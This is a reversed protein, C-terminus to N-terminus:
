KNKSFVFELKDNKYMLRAKGQKGSKKWQFTLENTQKGLLLQRIDGEGIIAGSISKAIVFNCKTDKCKYVKGREVVESSCTPCQGFTKQKTKVTLKSVQAVQLKTYDILEKHFQKLPMTGNEIDKLKQSWRATLEPSVLDHGHLSVIVEIGFDTPRINKKEKEFMKLKFLKNIIDARTAATGLGEVDKLVSQLNKDKVFKGANRMADLLTAETYRSPPETQKSLLSAGKLAVVQGKSLIPLLVDKKHKRLGDYLATFGKNVVVRGKTKFLHGNSNILVETKQVILPSMFCSLLRKTLLEYINVEQESLKSPSIKEDTLTIAHHDTLKKDDVYKKSNIFAEIGTDTIQKVHEKYGYLNGIVNLQKRIDKAFETPLHRSETRPYTILKKEYLSQAISLTDKSSYGFLQVAEKQLDLLSHLQPAASEEREAMVDEVFSEEILDSGIRKADEVDWIQNTDKEKDYWLANFGEFQGEIQYYDLPKFNKIELERNVVMALTPTMVRGVPITKDGGASQSTISIARSLNMGILWDFIARFMAANRLNKITPDNEDILNKLANEIAGDTTQSTWFRKVPITCGVHRYFSYFINEGETGADCANIIFDYQNNKLKDNIDKYVDHTQTKPKFEFKSPIMPLTNMEWKAWAQNYDQPSKLEVIHGVFSAFDAQYPLSSKDYVAKIARMMSPKEALILTKM